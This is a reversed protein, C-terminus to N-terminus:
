WDSTDYYLSAHGHFSTRHRYPDRDEEQCRQRSGCEGLVALSARTRSAKELAQCAFCSVFVWRSSSAVYIRDGVAANLFGYTDLNDSFRRGVADPPGQQVVFGASLFISGDPSVYQKKKPTVVDETFMEKLTKYRIISFDLQNRFEGNNWHNAPLIARAQPRPQAEQPLLVTIDASAGPRFFYVTGETGWSSLVILNGSQDFALNVPDLPQDNEIMPGDAKSWSYVRNKQHEVFYLKSSRDVVAGSISHFSEALKRVKAGPALVAFERERVELHHTMDQISNEFLFKSLRLFTHCYAM